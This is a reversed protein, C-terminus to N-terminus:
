SLPPATFMALWASLRQVSIQSGAFVAVRGTEIADVANLEGSRLRDFTTSAMRFTVTSPNAASTGIGTAMPRGSSAFVQWNVGGPGTIEFGLTLSRQTLPNPQPTPSRNPSPPSSPAAVTDSPAQFAPPPASDVPSSITLPESSALSLRAACAELHSRIDHRARVVAAAPWGFNDRLAANALMTLTPVDLTPCPLDALAREINSRDFQPDDRWYSRYVDMQQRAMEWQELLPATGAQEGYVARRPTEHPLASLVQDFVDHIMAVTVPRASTLHYTQGHCSPTAVLRAIAAAVWEVPVLDKREDGRLGLLDLFRLGAARGQAIRELAEHAVRLPTYFGHYTSSYGTRSDGVIISPRYVTVSDLHRAGRLRKEAECKSEEYVNGFPQGVDLESELVVGTRQGAVYATSVAHFERIGLRECEALLGTTAGVNSRWPEGTAADASFKLSAASHLVRSVHDALWRRDSDGITLGEPALGGELIVPRPLSRALLRECRALITEIRDAASAMRQSRVLVAVPTQQVLLEQLLYRGLLGSAGTLLCYM